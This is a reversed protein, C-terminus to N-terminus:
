TRPSSRWPTTSRTPWAPPWPGVVAMREGHALQIDKQRLEATRREVLEHLNEALAESYEVSEVFRRVLMGSFGVVIGLYAFPMLFPLRHMDFTLGLDIMGAVCLGSITVALTRADPDDRRAHRLYLMMVYSLVFGLAVVVAAGFFTVPARVYDLGLAPIRTRITTHDFLWDTTGASFVVLGVGVYVPWRVFRQSVGLYEWTFHFFGLVLPASFLMTANQWLKAEELTQAGYLMAICINLGFVSLATLTHWLHLRGRQHAFHLWGHLCGSCLAVMAFALTALALPSM